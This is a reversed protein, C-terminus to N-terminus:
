ISSEERLIRDAEKVGAYSLFSSRSRRHLDCAKNIKELDKENITIALQTKM